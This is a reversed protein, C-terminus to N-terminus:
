TRLNELLEKRNKEECLSMITNKNPKSETYLFIHGKRNTDYYGQPCNYKADFSSVYMSHCYVTSNRIEIRYKKEGLKLFFMYTKDRVDFDFVKTGLKPKITLLYAFIWFDNQNIELASTIKITVSDDQEKPLIYKKIKSLFILLDTKVHLKESPKWIFKEFDDIIWTKIGEENEEAHKFAEGVVFDIHRENELINEM